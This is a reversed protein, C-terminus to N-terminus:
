DLAEWYHPQTFMNIWKSEKNNMSLIGCLSIPIQAVATPFNWKRRSKMLDAADSTCYPSYFSKLSRVWEMEGSPVSVPSIVIRSQATCDAEGHQEPGVQEDVRVDGLAGSGLSAGTVPLSLAGCDGPRLSLSLSLSLSLAQFMSATFELTQFICVPQSNLKESDVCLLSKTHKQITKRTLPSTSM